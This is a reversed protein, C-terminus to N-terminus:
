GDKKVSLILDNNIEFTHPLLKNAILYDKSFRRTIVIQKLITEFILNNVNFGSEVHSLTFILRFIFILKKAKEIKFCSNQFYFVDRRNSVKDFNHFGVSNKRVDNNVFDCFQSM